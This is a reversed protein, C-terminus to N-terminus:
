SKKGSLENQVIMLPIGAKPNKLFTLVPVVYKVSRCRSLVASMKNGGVAGYRSYSCVNRKTCREETFPTIRHLQPSCREICVSNFTGLTCNVDDSFSAFATSKANFVARFVDENHGLLEVLLSVV